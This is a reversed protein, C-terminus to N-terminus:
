GLKIDSGSVTINAAPLPKTAPGKSVSGDAIKFKSGHCPCGILGGAVTSVTCGQHTCVASFAKYQGAAPQTVVIKQAAFIKGGGEPIDSTKGLVTGASTSATKPDSSSSCGAVAAAALGLVGAGLVQRRGSGGCCPQIEETMFRGEM